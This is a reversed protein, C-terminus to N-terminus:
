GSFTAQMLVVDYPDGTSLLYTVTFSGNAQVAADPLLYAGYFASQGCRIMQQGTCTAGCCYRSGFSPDLLDELVVPTSWPGEPRDAFRATVQPHTDYEVALLVWRDIASFFRVSTEGFGPAAVIPAGRTAGWTGGAADFLEFAGATALSSLVRRALHVPSRRFAGTGFLYLYNGSVEAAINIFDGFMPSASGSRQDVSYLIDLSPINQTTPSPWRALYSAEMTTDSPSAVTTYFVYLDGGYSFAGSPVESTGPLNPFWNGSAGSPNHVFTGISQGSPATMAPAGFDAVISPDITPGLSAGPSLTVFRLGSCLLDPMAALATAPDLSYGVADPLSQGPPWIGKYGHSDGFFFYLTGGAEAPIGLETGVLNARTPTENATPDGEAQGNILKCVQQKAVLLPVGAGTEASGADPGPAADLSAEDLPAGDTLQTTPGADTGTSTPNTGDVGRACGLACLAAVITAQRFARM